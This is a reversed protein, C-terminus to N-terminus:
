EHLPAMNWRRSLWVFQWALYETWLTHGFIVCCLYPFVIACVYVHVFECVPMYMFENAGPLHPQLRWDNIKLITGTIDQVNCTFNGCSKMSSWYVNAWTIAQHRWAVHCLRLWHEGLDKDGHPWISNGYVGAYVNRLLSTAIVDFRRWKSTLVDFHRRKSM